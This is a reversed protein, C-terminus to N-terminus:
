PRAGQTYPALALVAGVIHYLSSAPAPEVEFRGDAGQKDRWLGPASTELYRWLGAAGQAAYTRYATADAMPASEALLLAAKIYETQPWCRARPSTVTLDDSLADVAVSRAADVGERGRQFLTLAAKHARDSGTARAWRELLWAWEFQHGPEVLRGDDGAAPRWDADFFERLFGGQPDIFRDLALDVISAALESWAPDSDVERWALASELLHMHANAQFPHDGAERFGGASHSMAARIARLHRGADARLQDRGPSAGFQAARALLVFAQDYLWATDDMPSGDAAVLTRYLGDAREFHDTLYNLGHEAAAM